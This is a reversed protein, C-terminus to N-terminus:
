SRCSSFKRCIQALPQENLVDAALSNQVVEILPYPPPTFFRSFTPRRLHVAGLQKNIIKHEYQM